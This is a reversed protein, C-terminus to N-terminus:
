CPINIQFYFDELTLDSFNCLVPFLTLYHYIDLFLSYYWSLLDISYHLFDRGVKTSAAVISSTIFIQARMGPWTLNWAQSAILGSFPSM